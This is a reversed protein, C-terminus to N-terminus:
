QADTNTPGSSSGDGPAAESKKKLIEKYEGIHNIRRATDTIREYITRSKKRLEKVREMDFLLNGDEDCITFACLMDGIEITRQTVKIKKDEYMEWVRTDFVIGHEAEMVRIYIFTDQGWEPTDFQEKYLDEAEIIQEATLCGM